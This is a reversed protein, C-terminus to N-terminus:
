IGSQCGNHLYYLAWACRNCGQVKVELVLLWKGSKQQTEPSFGVIWRDLSGNPVFECVLFRSGKPVICYGYLCVLKRHHAWGITAMEARFVREGREKGGLRKVAVSNGYVEKYVSGSGEKVLLPASRIALLFVMGFNRLKGGCCTWSKRLFDM